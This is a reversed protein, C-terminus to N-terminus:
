SQCQYNPTCSPAQRGGPLTECSNYWTPSGQSDLGCYDVSDYAQGCSGVSYYGVDGKCSEGSAQVSNTKFLAMLMAVLAVAFSCMLLAILRVKTIVSNAM